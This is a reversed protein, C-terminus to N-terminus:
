GGHADIADRFADAQPSLSPASHRKVVAVLADPDVDYPDGAAEVLAELEPILKSEEARSGGDWRMEELDSGLADAMSELTDPDPGICLALALDPQLLVPNAAKKAEADVAARGAKGFVAEAGARMASALRAELGELLSKPKKKAPTAKKKPASAKKAKPKPKPKSAAKKKTAM